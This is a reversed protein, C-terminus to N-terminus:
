FRVKQNKLEDYMAHINECPVDRTVAHAPAAIYGGNKSLMECNRRTELRVEDPTGFPLTKQLSIGGLFAIDKGYVRKLEFIDLAEPQFPDYLDIGLEIMDPLIERIDGCSHIYIYKGISKIHKHIIKLRPKIYRRWQVPGMILGQQQGWDDGYYICDLEPFQGLYDVVGVFYETLRDLLRNVFQSNTIMGALLEEM